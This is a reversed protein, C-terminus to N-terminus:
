EGGGAPPLRLRGAEGTLSVRHCACTCIVVTRHDLHKSGTCPFMNIGNAESPCVFWVLDPIVGPTPTHAMDPQGVINEYNGKHCLDARVEAQAFEATM